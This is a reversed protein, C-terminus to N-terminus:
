GVREMQRPWAGATEVLGDSDVFLGALHREALWRGGAAPGLLFAAKAAVEAAATSAAAVTVQWVASAASTGTHPDLLHHMVKGARRWHRRGIGSTALAGHELHVRYVARPTPVSIPWAALAPTVGHVRLDGGADVLAATAGAERLRSLAADVALGKAIGGFDLGVGPPLTVTSSARDVVVRRWGRLFARPAEGAVATAVSVLEFSRDYGAAELARLVTPDYLGGTARAADLATSTVEFLLHSVRVARGAHANLYALESDARFRSLTAEWQEFLAFVIEALAAEGAPLVVALTTGMQRRAVRVM